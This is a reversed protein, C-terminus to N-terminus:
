ESNANSDRRVAGQFGAPFRLLDLCCKRFGRYGLAITVTCFAAISVSSSGHDLLQTTDLFRDGTFWGLAIYLGNALVCFWAVFWVIPRRIAAAAILPIVAGSVPGSWLTVLPKPDPDFLSFPMAWPRLDSQILRAGSLWGGAIHGLEHTTTMVCWSGITLSGFLGIRWAILNANLKAM